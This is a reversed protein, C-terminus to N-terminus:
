RGLNDFTLQNFVESITYGSINTKINSIYCDQDFYYLTVTEIFTRRLESFYLRSKPTVFGSGFSQRFLQSKALFPQVLNESKSISKFMATKAGVKTGIVKNKSDKNITNNEDIPIM